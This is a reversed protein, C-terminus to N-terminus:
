PFRFRDLHPLVALALLCIALAAIAMVALRRAPPRPRAFPHRARAGPRRRDWRSIWVAAAIVVVLAALTVPGDDGM